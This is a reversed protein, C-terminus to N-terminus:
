AAYKKSINCNANKDSTTFMDNQTFNLTRILLSLIRSFNNINYTWSNEVYLSM